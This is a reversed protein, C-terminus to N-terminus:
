STESQGDAHSPSSHPSEYTSSKAAPRVYFRHRRPRPRCSPLYRDALSCIAVHVVEVAISAFTIPGDM